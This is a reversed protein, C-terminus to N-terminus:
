SLREAIENWQYYRSLEGQPPVAKTVYRWYLNPHSFSLMLAAGLAENMGGQDWLGFIIKKGGDLKETLFPKVVDWRDLVVDHPHRLDLGVEVYHWESLHRLAGVADRLADNKGMWSWSDGFNPVIVRPRIAQAISACLRVGDMPTYTDAVDFPCDLMIGDLETADLEAKVGAACVKIYDPTLPVRTGQPINAGHSDIWNKGEATLAVLYRTWSDWMTPWIYDMLRIGPNISRMLAPDNIVGM